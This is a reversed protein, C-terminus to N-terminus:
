LENAIMKLTKAEINHQGDFTLIKINSINSKYENIIEEFNDQFYEDKKGLVFYNNSNKFVDEDYTQSLDPPFVCAWLIFNSAKFNNKQHWRSATAGGQSFGLITRQKFSYDSTIKNSLQDLFNHNDEIDDLRAEKTMWSAGVRGSTGNLYFRHMGEPAVIFHKDPDLSNFKRL